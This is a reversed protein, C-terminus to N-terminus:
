GSPGPQHPSDYLVLNDPDVGPSLSVLGISVQIAIGFLLANFVLLDVEQIVVQQWVIVPAHFVYKMKPSAGKGQSHVEHLSIAPPAETTGHNLHVVADGPASTIANKGNTPSTEQAGHFLLQISSLENSFGGDEMVKHPYATGADTIRLDVVFVFIM